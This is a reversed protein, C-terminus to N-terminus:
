LNLNGLIDVDGEFGYDGQFTGPIIEQPQHFGSAYVSSVIIGFLLFLFLSLKNRM